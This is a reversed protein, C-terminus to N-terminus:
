RKQSGGLTWVRSDTRFPSAPLGTTNTLNQEPNPAWAYRVAAPEPVEPSSVEVKGSEVQATATVFEGDKGAIAFGVLPGGEASTLGEAHYFELVIKNGKIQMSKYLPGSYPMEQEYTTALAWRALRDGVDQKNPPHINNALGVDVTVAMGTNPVNLTEFMGERVFVWGHDESPAQQAPLFNPLQVFLVPLDAQKWLARWNAILAPLQYRYLYPDGFRTNREGQYWIAGRLAYPALPEILSKYLGGSGPGPVTTGAQELQKLRAQVEPSDFMAQQAEVATWHEIPTGGVSSNILGVPVNLKQHLKRGFFYATASFQGVTDPGCVVWKGRGGSVTKFMRIQPHTTEKQEAVYNQCSSVRMAMNSQGSCLWVEGILVDDIVVRKGGQESVTMQCPEGSKLPKLTLSWNGNKDVTATQTQGAIEVTVTNEATGWVPVERGQQLVMHSSFLDPLVVDARATTPILVGSILLAALLYLKM